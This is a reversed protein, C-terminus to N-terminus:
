KSVLLPSPLQIEVVPLGSKSKACCQVHFGLGGAMSKSIGVAARLGKSPGCAANREVVRRGGLLSNM